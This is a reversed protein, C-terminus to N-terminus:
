RCSERGAEPAGAARRLFRGSARHGRNSPSRRGSSGTPATSQPESCRTLTM